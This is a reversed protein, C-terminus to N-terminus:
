RTALDPFCRRADASGRRSISTTTLEYVLFMPRRAPPDAASVSQRPVLAHRPSPAAWGPGPRSSDRFSPSWTGPLSGRYCESFSIPRRGFARGLKFLSAERRPSTPDSSGKEPRLDRFSTRPGGWRSVRPSTLDRALFIATPTAKRWGSNTRGRRCFACHKPLVLIQQTM